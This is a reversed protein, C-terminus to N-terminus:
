KAKSFGKGIDAASRYQGEPMKNLVQMVATPAGSEQARQILSQKDAPFDMGKFYKSVAAPTM